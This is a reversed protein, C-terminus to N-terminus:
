TKGEKKTGSTETDEHTLDRARRNKKGQTSNTELKTRFGASRFVGWTKKTKLGVGGGRRDGGGWGM